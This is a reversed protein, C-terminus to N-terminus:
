GLRHMQTSPARNGPSSLPPAGTASQWLFIRNGAYVWKSPLIQGSRFQDEAYFGFQWDTYTGFAGAGQLLSAMDGLLFDALAYNTYQGNFDIIPQAPYDCALSMWRREINAGFSLSHRGEQASFNDYLGDNGHNNSCPEVYPGYFNSDSGAITFGETSCTGTPDAVSIFSSWCFPKSNSMLAQSGIRFDMQTNFLTAVNVLKPNIIWIDGFAM